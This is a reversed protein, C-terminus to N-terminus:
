QSMKELCYESLKQNPLPVFTTAKMLLKGFQLKCPFSEMLKDKLHSWVFRPTPLSEYWAKRTRQPPKCDSKLNNCLGM